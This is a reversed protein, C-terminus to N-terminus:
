FVRSKAAGLLPMPRRDFEQAFQGKPTRVGGGAERERQGAIAASPIRRISFSAQQARGRAIDENKGWLLRWSTMTVTSFLVKGKKLKMNILNKSRTKGKPHAGVKKLFKERKQFVPGCCFHSRQLGETRM